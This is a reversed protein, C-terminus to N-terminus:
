GVTATYTADCEAPVIEKDWGTVKYFHEATEWSLATEPCVPTEGHEVTVTTERGNILFAITYPGDNKTTAATTVDGNGGCSALSFVSLVLCLILAVTIATKKM